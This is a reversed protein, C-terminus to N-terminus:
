KEKSFSELAILDLRVIADIEWVSPQIGRNRFFWGIESEPLPMAGGMGQPRKANLQM